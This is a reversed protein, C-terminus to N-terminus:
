IAANTEALGLIAWQESAMPTSPVCCSTFCLSSWVLGGLWLLGRDSGCPYSGGRKMKQATYNPPTMIILLFDLLAKLTPPGDQVPLTHLLSTFISPVNDRPHSCGVHWVYCSSLGCEQKSRVWGVPLNPPANIQHWIWMRIQLRVRNEDPGILNSQNRQRRSFSIESSTTKAHSM